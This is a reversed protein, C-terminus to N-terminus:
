AITIYQPTFFRCKAVATGSEDSYTEECIAVVLTDVAAGAVALLGSTGTLELFAGVTPLTACVDTDIEAIFDGKLVPVKGTYAVDYAGTGASTMYKDLAFCVSAGVMNAAAPTATQKAIVVAAATAVKWSGGGDVAIACGEFTVKALETASLTVNDEHAGGIGTPWGKLVRFM